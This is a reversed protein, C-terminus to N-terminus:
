VYGLYKNTVNKFETLSCNFLDLEGSIKNIIKIATILPANALLNTRALPEALARVRPGQRLRLPPVLLGLSGLVGPNHIRGRLVKFVYTALALNRRVKLKDYGVMGLVFLSPYMLPYYPYVGYEKWYLYRCFKNQIKEVMEIYKAEHPNWIIAGSELRSRVLANYLARVAATSYFSKTQRLIFGLNRFAKKCTEIIHNRFLLNSTVTLGLDKVCEVRPATHGDVNYEHHLPSLARTCSMVSCKSLNFQLKNEHSWRVVKDIDNQLERCDDGNDVKLLLKLDDAFLLCTAHEVVDPLDNIMLTFELPGLNSGQSVGSLTKYCDSTYGNYEVYQKRDKLYNAFFNLLRPTFGATALKKLLVDNDVTDFAKRFDFYAIDVQGGLRDVEPATYNMFCLLNSETNRGPRFGHQAESLRASVQPFIVAHMVSEFIKAFISLVAVPRFGSVDSGSGAKPVPIVRTTKWCEPYIGQELCLNFIYLLPEELVGRCDKVVYPPIGDPGVSRKPRLRKLASRVDRMQLQAVHVRASDEAKSGAAASAALDADLRPEIDSYVSKFYNAFETACDEQKIVQGNKTIAGMKQSVRRSRIFGWFSRPEQTFRDQLREQYKQHASNINEKVLTRYYSFMNYESELGSSKYLKHWKAKERIDQIIEKTYWEPYSYKRSNPDYTKKLPTCTEIINELMEYLYTVAKEAESIVYLPSWDVQAMQSYLQIFDCKSFNWPPSKEFQPPEVTPCPRRINEYRIHVELPPHHADIPVLPDNALSVSAEEEGATTLVLDLLRENANVVTNRQSLGCFTVFFVFYNQVNQSASYLNFDGIILINYYQSSLSELVHFLQMYDCDASKPPIYVICCLFSYTKKIRVVASVLEYVASDVDHGPLHIPQISLGSRPAAVLMAGGHKRGDVRDCRLVTFGRPVLEGDCIGENTGSETIAYLDSTATSINNFFTNSKTRLGRANQYYIEISGFKSKEKNGPKIM